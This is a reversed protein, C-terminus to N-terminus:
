RRLAEYAVLLVAGDALILLNLVMSIGHLRMFARRAPHDDAAAEFAPTRAKIAEMKPALWYTQAAGLALALLLLATGALRRAGPLAEGAAFRAALAAAIVFLGYRFYPPFITGVVSGAVDRPQTRFLVPAVVFTFVAIGGVWLGLALRYVASAIETV